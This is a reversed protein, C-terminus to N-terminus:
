FSGLDAQRVASDVMLRLTRFFKLGVQNKVKPIKRSFCLYSKKKRENEVSALIILNFSFNVRRLAEIDLCYAILHRFKASQLTM